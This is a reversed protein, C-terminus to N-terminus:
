LTKHMKQHDIGVETYIDGQKQYFLKDYFPVAVIRASLVVEKFGETKAVIESSEVLFKGIGKKQFEPSVAVQRMKVVENSLPKLVLCGLLNHNGDYCGLHYSKYEEAFDEVAFELGLPKRLVLDRLQVIASYRPTAFQIIETYM